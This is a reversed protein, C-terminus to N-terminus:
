NYCVVPYGVTVTEYIVGAASLPLNICGHSGDYTYINGGFSSRWTADHLGIGGNFPMWYTVPSRYDAGVLVAPSTKSKISYVGGPTQRDTNLTGSVCDTALLQVGDKYLWVHQNTLDIEVYSDGIDSLGTWAAGKNSFTPEVSGSVGSQLLESVSAATAAQDMCWGFDGMKLTIVSGYSTCFERPKGKTDYTEALSAIWETLKASDMSLTRSEEDRVMWSSLERSTLDVQLTEDFFLMATQTVYKGGAEYPNPMDTELVNKDCRATKSFIWQQSENGTYDSLIVPLGNYPTEEALTLYKGNESRILYADGADDPILEWQQAKGPTESQAATTVTGDLSSLLEGSHLARLLYARGTDTKKIYFKQQNTEEKKLYVQLQRYDGGSLASNKIDLVYNVDAASQLEYTQNVSLKKSPHIMFFADPIGAFARDGIGLFVLLLILISLIQKKMEKNWYLRLPDTM